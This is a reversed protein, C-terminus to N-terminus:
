RKAEVRIVIEVDSGVIATEGWSGTGVGFERRDITLIAEFSALRDTGIMEQMDGPVDMVGLIKIPVEVQRTVDKITLNGTAVLENEGTSRVGTSQFTIGPYQDAAFFDPTRLHDDRKENGTSVSAVPISAQVSSKSVDEPDFNLLVEFEAFKGTVPTLFHRVSFSVETHAVDVTWPASNSAAAEAGDLRVNEAGVFGATGAITLALAGVAGTKMLMM